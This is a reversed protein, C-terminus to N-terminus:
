DGSDIEYRDGCNECTYEHLCRGVKRRTYKHVCPQGNKDLRVKGMPMGSMRQGGCNSCKITDDEKNYDFWGYEM